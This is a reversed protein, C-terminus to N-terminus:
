VKPPGEDPLQSVIAAHRFSRFLTWVGYATFAVGLYLPFDREPDRLGLFVFIAGMVFMFTGSGYATLSSRKLIQSTAASSAINRQILTILAKVDEECRGRCALGKGLDTLHNASLGKGCSKCAGIADQSPDYFCKM